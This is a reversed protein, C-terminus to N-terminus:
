DRRMKVPVLSEKEVDACPSHGGGLVDAGRSVQNVWRCMEVPVPSEEAVNASPSPGGGLVDAGPSV